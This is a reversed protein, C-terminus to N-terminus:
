QAAPRGAPTRPTIEPAAGRPTAILVAGATVLVFALVRLAGLLGSPVPEDLVVTGALIPLANTLLTAVGAVTLAGARQYGLQLMSTGLSYGIIMTIVFAFRTGGQTAVKTSLDGVSFLLGGAVAQAIAPNEATRAVALVVLAVLGTGILWALIGALSGSKGGGAGNTLSIALALLGAVSVWVGASRRRGLREGSRRACFFALVGIGGAGVSQVLSLSALALAAAYMVFGSTEMAFGRLWARSALILRLSRRPHRASLTPLEAAAAQERLYALNILITSSAALVLAAVIKM